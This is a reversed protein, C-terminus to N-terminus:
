LTYRKQIGHFRAWMQAIREERTVKASNAPLSEALHDRKVVRTRLYTPQQSQINRFTINGLEFGQTDIWNHYGPDDHCLLLRVMNDDDTKARSPTYSVPRYLYDMSSFFSGMNTLMWFRDRGDFEIIMAEDAALRWCMNSASRGRLRDKGGESNPDDQIFFNPNAPDNSQESFQYPHEPWDNMMGTLFEGAWAAAKIFTEPTPMPLPEDMDIREIRMRTPTEEWRDFGQRIFLKRSAATTPLWNSGRKDGGIYLEFSGDSSTQLENGFLNSEPIDGFPDHLSRHNTGPIKEPRAGQVTINLFRATGKTGSIKYISNGDIWAQQYTFDANDGGLKCYPTCFAHIVPYRTNKTELALDFAQGLNQALFRFGDVRQLPNAPHYESFVQDGASQLKACFDRWAARLSEDHPSDGFAM